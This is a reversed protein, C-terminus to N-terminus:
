PHYPLIRAAVDYPYVYMTLAAIHYTAVPKGFVAPQAQLYPLTPDVLVFTRLNPRPAYWSSIIHVFFACVQHGVYCSQVPFVRMRFQSVWTMPAADWYGAYGVRLHERAAIQEVQSIAADRPYDLRSTPM